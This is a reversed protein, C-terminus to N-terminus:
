LGMFVGWFCLMILQLTIGTLSFFLVVHHGLGASLLNRHNKKGLHKNLLSRHMISILYGVSVIVIVAMIRCCNYGETLTQLNVSLGFASIATHYLFIFWAPLIVIQSLAAMWLALPMGQAFYYKGLLTRLYPKHSSDRPSTQQTRTNTFLKRSLRTLILIISGLFTLLLAILASGQLILVTTLSRILSTNDSASMNTPAEYKQVASGGAITATTWPASGISTQIFSVLDTTYSSPLNLNVHQAASKNSGIRLQHNAGNYYRTLVRSNGAKALDDRITQAGQVIPMAVDNTGYVILTPQTQKQRYSSADFDAYNPGFKGFDLSTYHRVVSSLASPIDLTDLYNTIAYQVEERPTVVPASTMISFAVDSRESCIAPSIWTGESEAYIGVESANVGPWSQLTDLSKEYDHAMSIYNRRTATYNDMRKDPVITAVGTSAIATSIDVFSTESSSGGIGSIFLCGPVGSSPLAPHVSTAKLPAIPERIVAGVSVTDTLQVTVHTEKVKYTGVPLTSATQESNTSIVTSSSTIKEAAANDFKNLEKSPAIVHSFGILFLGIVISYFITLLLTLLANKIKQISTNGQTKRQQKRKNGM